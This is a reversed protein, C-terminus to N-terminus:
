LEDFVCACWAVARACILKWSPHACISDLKGTKRGRKAPLEDLASHRHTWVAPSACWAVAAAEHELLNLVAEDEAAWQGCVLLRTLPVRHEEPTAPAATACDQACQVLAAPLSVGVRASAKKAESPPASKMLKVVDTLVDGRHEELHTCDLM